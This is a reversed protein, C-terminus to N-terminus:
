IGGPRYRNYLDETYRREADMCDQHAATGPQHGKNQCSKSVSGMCGSLVSTLLVLAAVAVKPTCVVRDKM